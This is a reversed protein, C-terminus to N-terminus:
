NITLLGIVYIHLIEMLSSKSIRLMRVQFVLCTDDAYLFMNCKVAMPMDNVYILFLLPDLISGKPVGCSINSVESFSNELNVMFKRNSLYSHFRKVTHDSFGIISLKKLPIDHNITDFGKQLDILIIGTVLCDDFGKLIKDNLFSLCTDTSHNKRFGSQYDYFVKKLSLFEETQNLAVREFVKSLLPLLSIPRYNSPDRKSGKKFLPKVKAIKCANPFSGLTMSLNCLESVPKALIRAGDKLFKGSIQDIGAAKTVEVNKLINFLYGETTSDLKKYYDSVFKITYRNPSKPLKALLNGALNSYFSKFTKLISNTDHKVIQNETLAGVICRGSKNSLGLSKIAKWLDKPKGIYEKLKNEFFEKKKKAILNQM